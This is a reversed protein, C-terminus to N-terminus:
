RRWASLPDIGRRQLENMYWQCFEYMGRCRDDGNFIAMCMEQVGNRYAASASEQGKERFFAEVLQSATRGTREKRIDFPHNPEQFPDWEEFGIRDIFKKRRSSLNRYIAKKQEERDM